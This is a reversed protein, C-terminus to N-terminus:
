GHLKTRFFVIKQQQFQDVIIFDMVDFYEGIGYKIRSLLGSTGHLCSSEVLFPSIHNTVINRRCTTTAGADTKNSANRFGVCSISRVAPGRGFRDNCSFALEGRGM